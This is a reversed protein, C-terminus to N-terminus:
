STLETYDGLNDPGIAPSFGSFVRDPAPDGPPEIRYATRYVVQYTLRVGGFPEEGEDGIQVETDQLRITASELGPIEFWEMAAEIQAALADVRDDVDDAAVVAGEIALRLERTLWGNIGSRPFENERIAESRAYILIAPCDKKFLRRVRNAFVRDEAATLFVADGAGPASELQVPTRLHMAVADRIKKRASPIAPSTTM